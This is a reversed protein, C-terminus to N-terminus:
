AGAAGIGAAELALHVKNQFASDKGEALLAVNAAIAAVMASTWGAEDKAFDRLM